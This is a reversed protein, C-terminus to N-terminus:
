RTLLGPSWGSCRSARPRRARKSRDRTAWTGRSRFLSASASALRATSSRADFRSPQPRLGRLQVDKRRGHRRAPLLTPTPAAAPATRSTTSPVRPAPRSRPAPARERGARRPPAEGPPAPRFFPEGASGFAERLEDGVEYCCPGIAPGLAALLDEAQSGRAVLAEVARARGRRRDRALRRAGSGREAAEPRRSPGAPLRRDPHRPAVRPEVRDLRRSRAGPGLAGRRCARRPGAELPAAPRGRRARGGGPRPGRRADRGERPARQEFGHVLGPIAALAPVRATRLAM